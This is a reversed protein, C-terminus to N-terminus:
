TLEWREGKRLGDVERELRACRDELDRAKSEVLQEREKKKMRFRASAATNRRRKDEEHTIIEEEFQSEGNELPLPKHIVVLKKKKGSGSGSVSGEDEALLRKERKLIPTSGSKSATSSSPSGEVSFVPSSTNGRGNGNLVSTSISALAPVNAASSAARSRQLPTNESSPSNNGNEQQRGLISAAADLLGFPHGDFNGNTAPTPPPISGSSSAPRTDNNDHAFHSPGGFSSPRGASSNQGDRAGNQNQPNGNGQAQGQTHAQQQAASIAAMFATFAPDQNQGNTVGTAAGQSPPPVQGHIHPPLHPPPMFPQASQPPQPHSNSNYAYAAAAAAAAFSAWDMGGPGPTPGDAQPQQFPPPGPHRGAGNNQHHGLDTNRDHNQNRDQPQHQEQSPPQHQTQYEQELREDMLVNRRQKSGRVKSDFMERLDMEDENDPMPDQRQPGNAAPPPGNGVGRGNGAGYGGDGGGGGLGMPSNSYNGHGFGGGSNVEPDKGKGNGVHNGLGAAGGGPVYVDPKDEISEWNGVDGDLAFDVNTWLELQKALIADLATLDEAGNSGSGNLNAIAHDLTNQSSSPLLHSFPHPGPSPPSYPSPILNLNAIHSPLGTNHNSSPHQSSSSPTGSAHHNSHNNYGGSSGGAASSPYSYHNPNNPNNNSM